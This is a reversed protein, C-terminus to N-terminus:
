QIARDLRAIVTQPQYDGLVARRRGIGVNIAKTTFTGDARKTAFRRLISCFFRAGRRAAGTIKPVVQCYRWRL